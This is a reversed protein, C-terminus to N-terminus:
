SVAVKMTAPYPTAKNSAGDKVYLKITYNGPPVAIGGADLGDWIVTNVGAVVPATFTRLTGASTLIYVTVTGAESSTFTIPCSGPQTFAGASYDTITPGTTDVTVIRKAHVTGLDSTATILATYIGDPVVVGGDDRGDWACTCPGAPCATPALLDRIAAGTGDQMVISVTAARALPISLTSTDKSGDGNPSFVSPSFSTKGITSRDVTVTTAQTSENSLTDKVRAMVTYVGEPVLAYTGDPATYKGDWTAAHTGADLTAWGTLYKVVAGTADYVIVRCSAQEATDYSVTANDDLGDGNPTITAPDVALGSVGPATFDTTIVNHDAPSIFSFGHDAYWTLADLPSLHGDSGTTHFHLEGKYWQGQGAYPNAINGRRDIFFPQSSAKKGAGDVIGVRVFRDGSRPAYEASTANSRTLVTGRSSYFTIKSAV